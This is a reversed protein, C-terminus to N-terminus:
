VLLRDEEVFTLHVLFSISNDYIKFEQSHQTTLLCTIKLIESTRSITLTKLSIKYIKVEYFIDLFIDMWWEDNM